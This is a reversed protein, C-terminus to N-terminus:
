ALDVASFMFINECSDVHTTLSVWTHGEHCGIVHSLMILLVYLVTCDVVKRVPWFHNQVDKDFLSLTFRM